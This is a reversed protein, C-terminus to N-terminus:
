IHEKINEIRKRRYKSPSMGYKKTFQRIFYAPDNIGVRQSIMQVTEETNLLLEKAKELRYNALYRVYSVDFCTKFLRSFHAKSYHFERSIDDLSCDKAYHAHIYTKINLALDDDKKSMEAEQPFFQAIMECLEHTNRCTNLRTKIVTMADEQRNLFIINQLLEGLINCANSVLLPFSLRGDQMANKLLFSLNQLTKIDQKAISQCFQRILPLDLEKQHIRQIQLRSATDELECLEQYRKPLEVRVAVKSICVWGMAPLIEPLQDKFAPFFFLVKHNELLEWCAGEPLRAAFSDPDICYEMSIMQIRKAYHTVLMEENQDIQIGLACRYLASSNKKRELTQYDSLMSLHAYEGELKKDLKSLVALLSNKDIPKLLYELVDYSVASQAYQFDAFGSLVIIELPKVQIDRVRRILEIGDMEPMKIDTILAQYNGERLLSLANKPCTCTTVHYDPRYRQIIKGILNVQVVEDDVIIIHTNM